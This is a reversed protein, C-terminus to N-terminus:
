FGMKVYLWGDTQKKVIEAIGLPVTQAFSVLDEKKVNRTSMTFECGVFSVDKLKMKDLKSVYRSKEKLLFDLGPGHCVLEIVVDPISKKLNSVQNIISKHVLTDASQLHFVVKPQQQALATTLLLWFFIILLNKM